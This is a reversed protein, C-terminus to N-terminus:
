FGSYGGAGGLLQSNIQQIVTFDLSIGADEAAADAFTLLLDESMDRTFEARVRTLVQATEGEELDPGSVEDVRVLLVEADREIVAFDNLDQDFIQTLDNFAFDGTPVGRRLDAVSSSAFGLAYISEGAEVRAQLQGALDTLAELVAAQRTLDKAQDIVDDFALTGAPVIDDVRLAFIGGDSLTFLEPFDGELAADAQERFEAYAAIDAESETNFDVTGLVMETEDALEELTAGAVLLDDVETVLGNIVDSRRIAALEERLVPEAEEFPITQANLVASVFYLASGLDDAVPGYVGPTIDDFIVAAADASVDDREVIGLDIDNTTLGREEVLVSFEVEGSNVRDIAAQADEATPYILREVARREPLLYRNRQAEYEARLDEDSIEVDDMLSPTLWAYTIKKTELSQFQDENASYFAQAEEETVDAVPTELNEERLTIFTADRSELAYNVVAAASGEPARIGNQIAGELMFRALSSRILTEYEGTTLGNQDLFFTYSAENFSGDVSQFGQNGLIAERVAEDGVAIGFESNLNDLATGRVADDLVNDLLGLAQMDAFSPMQGTQRAFFQRTSNLKSVYTNISIQTDGVTGVSSRSIGGAGGIGFGILGVFLLGLIIWVGVSGKKSRMSGLM